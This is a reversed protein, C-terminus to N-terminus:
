GIVVFTGRMTPLHLSCWYPFTGATSAVFTFTENQQWNLDHNMAYPPDMTFTHHEAEEETNFFHITVTDGKNVIISDPYFGDHPQGVFTDNFNLVVTFVWVERAQPAQAAGKSLYGAGFGAISGVLASLVIAIVAVKGVSSRTKTESGEM